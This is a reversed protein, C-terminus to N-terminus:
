WCMPQRDIDRPRDAVSVSHQRVAMNPQAAKTPVLGYAMLTYALRMTASQIVPHARTEPLVFHRAIAEGAM